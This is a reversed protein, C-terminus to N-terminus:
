NILKWDKKYSICKYKGLTFSKTSLIIEMATPLERYLSDWEAKQEETYEIETETTFPDIGEPKGNFILDIAEYISNAGFPPAINDIEDKVGQIINNKNVSFSLNELLTLHEQKLEFKIVSM